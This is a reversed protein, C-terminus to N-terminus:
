FVFSAGAKAYPGYLLEEKTGFSPYSVFTYINMMGLDGTLKWRGSQGLKYEAHLTLRAITGYVTDDITTSGSIHSPVYNESIDQSRNGGFGEGELQLGMKLRFTSYLSYTLGFGLNGLADFTNDHESYFDGPGLGASPLNENSTNLTAEVLRVGGRLYARFRTGALFNQFNYRLYIQYWTDNVDFSAPVPPGGLGPISISTSGTSRGNEGSFDLYWSRGYSYSVTGGYYLTSRDASVANVPFTAGGASHAKLGYGIPVTITGEGYMFDASASLENKYVRPPPMQPMSLAPLALTPPANNDTGPTGSVAPPLTANGNATPPPQAPAAAPMGSNKAPRQWNFLELQEGPHWLASDGVNLSSNESDMCLLPAGITPLSQSPWQMEEINLAESFAPPSAQATQGPKPGPTQSTLDDSRAAANEGATVCFLSGSVALIVSRYFHNRAGPGCAGPFSKSATGSVSQNSGNSPYNQKM